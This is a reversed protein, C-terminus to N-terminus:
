VSSLSGQSCLIQLGALGVSLAMFSCALEVDSVALSMVAFFGFVPIVFFFQYNSQQELAGSAAYPKRLILRLILGIFLVLFISIKTM